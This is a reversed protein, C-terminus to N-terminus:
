LIQCAQEFTLRPLRPFLANRDGHGLSILFNSRLRGDPFFETNLADADFGSMPGCDLGLARAALIMYGGQLTANRIATERALAQDSGHDVAVQPRHHFLTPLYEHYRTDTAVIVTVPAASAKAINNDSLTRLLRAKAEPSTIFIFRAPQSNVSTPALKVLDYVRRLLDPAVPKDLWVGHSRGSSFMLDLADAM